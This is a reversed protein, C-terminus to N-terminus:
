PTKGISFQEALEQAADRARESGEALLESYVLLPHATDNTRGRMATPGPFGLLTLHGSSDRIARLRRPLDAPPDALHVVTKRGRFYGTLREAAAGGGWKWTGIDDLV